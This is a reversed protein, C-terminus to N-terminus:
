QPLAPNVSYTRDVRVGSPPEMPRYTSRRMADATTVNHTKAVITNRMTLTRGPLTPRWTSPGNADSSSTTRNLWWIPVSRANILWYRVDIRRTNVSSKPLEYWLPAGTFSTMTGASNREPLSASSANTMVMGIEIAAPM